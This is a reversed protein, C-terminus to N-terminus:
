TITLNRQCIKGQVKKSALFELGQAVQCAIDLKEVEQLSMRESHSLLQSGKINRLFGHLDGGSMYEMVICAQGTTVSTLINISFLDSIRIFNPLVTIKRHNDPLWFSHAFATFYFHYLLLIKNELLVRFCFKLEIRSAM